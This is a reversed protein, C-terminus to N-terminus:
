HVINSEPARNGEAAKLVMMYRAKAERFLGSMAMADGSLWRVSANDPATELLADAADAVARAAAPDARLAARYEIVALELEGAAAHKAAVAMQSTPQEGEPAVEFPQELAADATAVAEAETDEPASPPTQVFETDPTGGVSASIVEELEAHPIDLGEELEPFTVGAEAFVERAVSNGPNLESTRALLSVADGDRRSVAAAAVVALARLCYPHEGAIERAAEEAEELRRALSLARVLGIAVETLDPAQRLAEQLWPIASDYKSETLFRRATAHMSSGPEPPKRHGLQTHLRAIEAAIDHNSPDVDFARAFQKLAEDLDGEEESIMALAARALINEPDIELVRAFADRSEQLRRDELYLKGMSELTQHDKPFRQQMLLTLSLAKKHDGASLAANAQERIESLTAM